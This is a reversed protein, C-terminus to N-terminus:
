IRDAVTKSHTITLAVVPGNSTNRAHFVCLLGNSNALREVARALEEIWEPGQVPKENNSM